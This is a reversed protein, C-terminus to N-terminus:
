KHFILGVSIDLRNLSEYQDKELEITKTTTGDNVNFKTLTGVFYSIEFGLSINESIGIDYGIGLGMGLTSGTIKSTTYTVRKDSYKVYGLAINSFLANKKNKSILRYSFTPSIFSISLDDSLSGHQFNNFSNSTKFFKYAAGFGLTESIFYTASAGIHFGHKMKKLYDKLYDSLDSAIKATQYSYGGDIAIRFKHYDAPENVPLESTPYYASKYNVVESLPILTNKIENKDKFKFYINDTQVTKIKCNISDGKNTVILDQSYINNTIFLLIIYALLKKM